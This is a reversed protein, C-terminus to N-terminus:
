LTVIYEPMYPNDIALPCIGKAFCYRALYRIMNADAEEWDIAEEAYEFPDRIRVIFPFDKRVPQYCGDIEVEKEREVYIKMEFCDAKKKFCTIKEAGTIDTVIERIEKESLSMFARGFRISPMDKEMCDLMNAFAVVPVIMTAGNKQEEYLEKMNKLLNKKRRIERSEM